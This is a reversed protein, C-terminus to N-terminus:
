FYCSGKKIPKFEERKIGSVATSWAYYYQVIGSLASLKAFTFGRDRYPAAEWTKEINRRVADLQYCLLMVIAFM